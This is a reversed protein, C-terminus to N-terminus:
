PKADVLGELAQLDAAVDDDFRLLPLGGAGERCSSGAFHQPSNSGFSLASQV